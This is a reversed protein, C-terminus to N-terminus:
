WNPIPVEEVAWLPFNDPATESPTFGNGGLWRIIIVHNMEVDLATYVEISGKTHPQFKMKNLANEAEEPSLDWHYAMFDILSKYKPCTASQRMLM